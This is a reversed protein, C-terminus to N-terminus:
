VAEPVAFPMTREIETLRGALMHLRDSMENRVALVAELNALRAWLDDLASVVERRETDDLHLPALEIGAHLAFRGQVIPTANHLVKDLLAQVSVRPVTDPNAGWNAVTRPAVGVLHAFGEISTRTAKRLATATRGTWAVDHIGTM